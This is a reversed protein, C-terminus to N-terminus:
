KDKQKLIEIMKELSKVKYDKEIITVQQRMIQGILLVVIFSLFYFV